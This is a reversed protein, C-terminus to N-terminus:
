SRVAGGAIHAALLQAVDDAREVPPGHGCGELVVESAEGGRDRYRDLVSRTQAVMPQPPFRDRGPWGPVVGMQGLTGLDFLSADSVVRDGDGRIWLIPPRPAVDPLAALNCYLPALANNVGTEGPAIHPWHPSSVSSGPYGEDGVWTRLVEAVLDEEDSATFTSSWFYSRMVVRPASMPDRESADGAGLRRVFDPAAAGGGSGAADPTCLTGATDKTAGFGYPSMPALLTVTALDAPHDILYQQLVGGGLSWGMAHVRGGDAWGLAQVLARLDDSWDRVGRTADIARRETRGFARLDPAVVRHGPPLAEAVARYFRGTTLNGHVALIPAGDPPGWVWCHTRVRPTDIYFTEVARDDRGQPGEDIAPTPGM